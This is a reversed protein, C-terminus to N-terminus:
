QPIGRMKYLETKLETIFTNSLVQFLTWSQNNVKLVVSHESAWLGSQDPYHLVIYEYHKEMRDRLSRVAKLHAFIERKANHIAEPAATGFSLLSRLGRGATVSIVDHNFFLTDEILERYSKDITQICSEFPQLQKKTQAKIVDIGDVIAHNSEEVSKASKALILVAQRMQALEASQGAIVTNLESIAQQTVLDTATDEVKVQILGGLLKHIFSTAKPEQALKFAARQDKLNQVKNLIISM